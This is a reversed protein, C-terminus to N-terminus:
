WAPGVRAKLGSMFEDLNASHLFEETVTSYFAEAPRVMRASFACVVRNQLLIADVHSYWRLVCWVCVAGVRWPILWMCKFTCAARM